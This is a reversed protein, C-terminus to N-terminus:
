ETVSNLKQYPTMNDIGQHRRIHNYYCCYEFLEEELQSKDQYVQEKLLEEELSRWFREVKGNTQPRYPKTYKHKINYELLLREFPHNEKTKEKIDKRGFESGNDTLISEFDIGYCRNFVALLKQTSLMVTLAQLNPIVISFVLRTFDDTLTLLFYEDSKGELIGKALRHCDMHGMEGAKEKIIRRKNIQIVRPDLKNLGKKVLINYITTASPTYKGYKPLLFDHIEYRGFGKERLEVIKNQIFPISKLTGFKRGRKAPVLSSDMYSLKFRNYYKIFNQRTINNAKYFETVFIYRSHKKAKILEYEQVLQKMHKLYNRALTKDNLRM